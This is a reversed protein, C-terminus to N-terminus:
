ICGSRRGRTRVAEELAAYASMPAKAGGTMWWFMGVLVVAAAAAATAFGRIHRRIVDIRRPRIARKSITKMVRERVSGGAKQRASLSAHVRAAGDAEARCEGCESLHSEFAAKAPQKLLGELWAATAERCERCNM